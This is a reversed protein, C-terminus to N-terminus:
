TERYGAVFAELRDMAVTLQEDSRAYCLRVFRESGRGFAVGPAMGIKAELVARKCFTLTDNVGAVEFMAYFGGTNPINRVRQMRALRANVLDRGGRCRDAFFKVFDEGHELAAIAGHQLFEAAGSYNFQILKEFSERHGAPYVIWGLRWGTMAWAKSFSNVVFVPDDPRAIDLFSFAVGRDSGPGEYVLRHYVEDSLIAIGRTRAFDLLQEAQARPIMWGTPNGPSALYIVKTRADCAAFLADIDLSWGTNGATMAVERPEAGCIQMARLINPWSPTVAVANDGPGVTAQAILMVASMGSTTLTTRDDPLDIGYIRKNYAILADRMAQIGRNPSYFTRGEALAKSAADCIFAPTPVDSEGAFMGIVEPNGYGMRWVDVIPSDELEEIAARVLSM